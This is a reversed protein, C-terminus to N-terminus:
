SRDTGGIASGGPRSASRSRTDTAVAMIVFMLFFSVEHAWLVSQRQSGSPMAAGSHAIDGLSGRQVAAAALAGLIQATGTAATDAVLPLATHARLRLEM